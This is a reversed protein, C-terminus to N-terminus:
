KNHITIPIDLNFYNYFHKKMFSIRNQVNETNLYGSKCANKYEDPTNTFFEEAWTGFRNTTVKLNINLSIIEITLLVLMPVNIVKLFKKKQPFAENLYFLANDLTSKLKDKISENRLNKIFPEMDKSNLGGEPEYILKLIHLVLEQDAYMKKASASMNIKYDLFPHSTIRQLFSIINNGLLIRKIEITNLPVGNNLRFFINEIEYESLNEIMAIDLKYNLINQHIEKPLESFLLGAIKFDGVDPTNSDLKFDDFIYSIITKLRQKGDLVSINNNQKVAVIPPIFYGSIISHILLSQRKINWINDNRQIALSFNLKFTKYQKILKEVTMTVKKNFKNTQINDM